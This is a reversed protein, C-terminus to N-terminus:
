CFDAAFPTRGYGGVVVMCPKNRGRQFFIIPASKSTQIGSLIQKRFLLFTTTANLPFLYFLLFIVILYLGISSIERNKEKTAHAVISQVLYHHPTSSALYLQWPCIPWPFYCPMMNIM